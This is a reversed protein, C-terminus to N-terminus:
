NGAGAVRTATLSEVQAVLAAPDPFGYYRKWSGSRGDGVLVVAPHDDLARSRTGLGDLTAAVAGPNGTLWSWGGGAGHSRAYELLRVPTDRVPDISVSVLAVDRGVREGLRAQVERMITSLVPCVTTCHTYVFDIVAIRGGIVDIELRRERSHQDLLPVDAFRVTADEARRIPSASPAQAAHGAHGAHELRPMQSRGADPEAGAAADGPAGLAFALMCGVTMSHFTASM